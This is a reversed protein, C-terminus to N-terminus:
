TDPDFLIEPVTSDLGAQHCVNKMGDNIMDLFHQYSYVFFTPDTNDYKVTGDDEKVHMVRPSAHVKREPNHVCQAFYTIGNYELYM